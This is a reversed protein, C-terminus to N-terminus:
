PVVTYYILTELVMQMQYHTHYRLSLVASAFTDNPLELDFLVNPQIFGLKQFPRLTLDM